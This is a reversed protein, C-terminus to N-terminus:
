SLLELHNKVMTDLSFDILNATFANSNIAVKSSLINQLITKLGIVDQEQFLFGNHNDIVLGLVNGQNVTTVVPLHALLGELVAYGFTEGHSPHILYDYNAYIDKLNSVSGKFSFYDELHYREILDILTTQYYGEGYIAITFDYTVEDNLLKVAMILDQIGKDIRLHSAVIFRNNTSFSTKQKFNAQQLGNYVLKTKSQIHNGFESIMSAISFPSVGIFQDIYRSYLLGKLRKEIKKKLPYGNLPRPNHDVAIVKATSLKKTKKFFPTCLAIFHTIIHTYTPENKKSFYLFFAEISHNGSEYITLKNYDGHNSTNPFFWDVQINNQKCTADFEWFFYDMGGVREPLLEYNCLVAIKKLSDM